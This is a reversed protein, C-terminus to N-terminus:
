TCGSPTWTAMRWRGARPTCSARDACLPRALRAAGTARSAGQAAARENGLTQGAGGVQVPAAAAVTLAPSRARFSALIQKTLACRRLLRTGVGQGQFGRAVVLNSLLARQRVDGTPDARGNENLMSIEIGCSGIIRSGVEAVLLANPRSNLVSFREVLNQHMADRLQREADEDAPPGFLNQACLLSLPQFIRSPLLEGGSARRVRVGTPAVAGYRAAAPRSALPTPPRIGLLALTALPLM